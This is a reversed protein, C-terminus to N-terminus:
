IPDLAEYFGNPNPACGTLVLAGDALV